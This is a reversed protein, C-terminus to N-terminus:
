HIPQYSVHLRKALKELRKDQTWLRAGPTILTSALLTIDVLGCGLGYLKENEIFAMVETITAQHSQPLLGLDGLTRLRPAPPTGCAIEVLIMPHTLVLDRELLQALGDNRNKFHDVWVSTDVLITM